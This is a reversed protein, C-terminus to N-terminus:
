ESDGESKKAKRKPKPEPEEEALPEPAVEDAYPRTDTRVKRGGPLVTIDPMKLM